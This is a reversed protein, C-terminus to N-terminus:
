GEGTTRGVCYIQVKPPTEHRWVEPPSLSCHCLDAFLVSSTSSSLLCAPNGLGKWPVRWTTRWSIETQANFKNTSMEHWETSVAFFVKSRGWLRERSCVCMAISIIKICSVPCVWMKIIWHWAHQLKKPIYVPRCSTPASSMCPHMNYNALHMWM